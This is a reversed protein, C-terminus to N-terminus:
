FAEMADIVRKFIPTGSELAVQTSAISPVGESSSLVTSGCTRRDGDKM